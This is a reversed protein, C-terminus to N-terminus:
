RLISLMSVINKIKESDNEIFFDRYLSCEIHDMKKEGRTIDL